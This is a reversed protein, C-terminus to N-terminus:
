ARLRYLQYAIFLALFGIASPYAWRYACWLGVVSGLKVLRHALLYLSGLLLTSVSLQAATHRLTTTFQPDETRLARVSIPFRNSSPTAYDILYAGNDSNCFDESSWHPQIARSHNKAM